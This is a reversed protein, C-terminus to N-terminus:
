YHYRKNGYNTTVKMVIEAHDLSDGIIFMDGIEIDNIDVPNLEKELSLISAYVTVMDSAYFFLGKCAKKYILM